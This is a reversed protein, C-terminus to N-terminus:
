EVAALDAYVGEGWIDEFAEYVPTMAERFPALDPRTVQMGKDELEAVLAEESEIVAESYAAGHSQLVEIVIDQDEASAEAWATESVIPGVFQVLHNTLTLHDQVEYFSASDITPLPNEQGDVVGTQLGLYLEPFAMPTPTMGLAEAFRLSLDVEPVRLRLGAVDEVSEIPRVNNTMQRTGYYWVDLLRLGATERLEEVLAAGADSEVLRVLHDYDRALYPAELVSMAELWQSLIGAGDLAMQTTGLQMGTLIEHASGIQGAPFVQINIRGETREAIEEAAAEMARNAPHDPPLIHGLQWDAASAAAMGSLMAALACGATATRKLYNM